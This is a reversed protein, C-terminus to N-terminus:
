SGGVERVLDKLSEELFDFSRPEIFRGYCTECVWVDHQDRYGFPHAYEAIKEWCIACHEHDWHARARFRTRRWERTRDAVLEAREGWYSDLAPYGHGPELVGLDRADDPKFQAEGTSPDHRVFRGQVFRDNGVYLVALWGQELRSRRDLQGRVGEKELASVLFRPLDKWRFTM